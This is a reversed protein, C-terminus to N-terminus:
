KEGMAERLERLMTLRIERVLKHIDTSPFAYYSKERKEWKQALAEIRDRLNSMKEVEDALERLSPTDGGHESRVWHILRELRKLQSTPTTM